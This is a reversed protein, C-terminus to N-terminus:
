DEVEVLELDWDECIGTEWDVGRDRIEIKYLKGHEAHEIGILHWDNDIDGLAEDLLGCVKCGPCSLRKLENLRVSFLVGRETRCHSVNARYIKGKCDKRSM